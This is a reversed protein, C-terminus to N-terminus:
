SARRLERPFQDKPIECITLRLKGSRERPIEAVREITWQLPTSFAAEMDLLFTSLEKQVAAGDGKAAYRLHIHDLTKQTLQVQRITRFSRGAQVILPAGAMVSGDPLVLNDVARGLVATVSPYWSGCACPSEDFQVCDATDYRILPMGYNFLDTIVLRYLPGSPSRGAPLLEVYSAAPHFHLRGEQCEAAITGAARSDYHTTVDCEFTEELLRRDEPNLAEATTLILQPRHWSRGSSRLWEAFLALTSSTGCIVESKQHNLKELLGTFTADGLKASGHVRGLIREELFRRVGHEAPGGEAGEVLLIRMGQDYGSLHNLHIQMAAKNHLGERDCWLAAPSASSGTGESARRLQDPRFARSVLDEFNTRVLERTLEPLPLPQGQRWDVSRFGIEDFVLRYYPCTEYAHDLLARMRREQVALQEDRSMADFRELSRLRGGLGRYLDPQRLPLIVNNHLWAM